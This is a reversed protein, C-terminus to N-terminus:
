QVGSTTAQDDDRGQEFFHFGDRNSTEIERTTSNMSLSTFNFHVFAILHITFMIESSNTFKVERSDM